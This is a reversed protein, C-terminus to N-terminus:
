EKCRRGNKKVDKQWAPSNERLPDYLAKVHIYYILNQPKVHYFWSRISADARRLPLEPNIAIVQSKKLHVSVYIFARHSKCKAGMSIRGGRWRVADGTLRVPANLLSAPRGKHCEQHSKVYLFYVYMAYKVTKVSEIPNDHLRTKANTTHLESERVNFSRVSSTFIQVYQIHCTYWARRRHKVTLTSNQCIKPQFVQETSPKRIVYTERWTKHMTRKVTVYKQWQRTKTNRTACDALTYTRVNYGSKLNTQGIACDWLVKLEDNKWSSM